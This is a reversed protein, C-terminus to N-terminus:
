FQLAIRRERTIQITTGVRIKIFNLPQVTEYSRLHTRLNPTKRPKAKPHRLHSLRGFVSRILTALFDVDLDLTAFDALDFGAALGAAILALFAALDAFRGFAAFDGEAVFAAFFFLFVVGVFFADGPLFFVPFIAAAPFTPAALREAAFFVADAFFGETLFDAAGLFAAFDPELAFAGGFVTGL